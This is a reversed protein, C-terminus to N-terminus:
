KVKQEDRDAECCVFDSMELGRAPEVLIAVTLAASSPAELQLWLSSVIRDIWIRVAFAWSSAPLGV